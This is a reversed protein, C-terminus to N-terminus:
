VLKLNKNSKVSFNDTVTSKIEEWIQPITERCFLMIANCFEGYTKYYKNRTTHNHLVHWLREISNLHPCYAPLFHLIIRNDHRELWAKVPKSYHYAANDLYVHIKKKDSYATELKQLLQVTSYADVTANNMFNFQGTAVNLAAHINIRKRGTSSLVHRNDTKKMWVKGTKAMHTPHVADLFVIAEDDPLDNKLAQYAEIAAKQIDEDVAPTTLITTKHV